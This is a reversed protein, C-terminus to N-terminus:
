PIISLNGTSNILREYPVGDEQGEFPLDYVIPKQRGVVEDKASADAPCQVIIVLLGFM